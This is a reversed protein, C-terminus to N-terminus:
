SAKVNCLLAKSIVEGARILFSYLGIILLTLKYILYTKYM